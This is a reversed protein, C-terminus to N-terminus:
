SLNSEDLESVPRDQLPTSEQVQPAAPAAQVASGLPSNPNLTLEPIYDEAM